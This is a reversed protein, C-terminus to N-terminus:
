AKAANISSPTSLAAPQWFGSSQFTRRRHHRSAEPDVPKSHQKMAALLKAIGDSNVREAGFFSALSQHSCGVETLIKRQIATGSLGRFEAIFERVTRRQGLDRDRAM